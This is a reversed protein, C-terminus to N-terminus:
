YYWIQEFQGIDTFPIRARLWDLTTPPIAIYKDQSNSDYYMLRDEQYEIPADDSLHHYLSVFYRVARLRNQEDFVSLRVPRNVRDEYIIPGECVQITFAKEQFEKPIDRCKYHPGIRNDYYQSILALYSLSIVSLVFVARWIAESIIEKRSFEKAKIMGNIKWWHFMLFLFLTFYSLSLITSTKYGFWHLLGGGMQILLFVFLALLPACFVTVIFRIM